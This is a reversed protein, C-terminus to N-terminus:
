RFIPKLSNNLLKGICGVTGTLLAGVVFTTIGVDGRAIRVVMILAFITDVTLLTLLCNIIRRRLAFEGWEIRQRFREENAAKAPQNTTLRRLSEMEGDGM